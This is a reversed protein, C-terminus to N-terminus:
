VAAEEARLRDAEAKLAADNEAKENMAQLREPLEEVLEIARRIKRDLFLALGGARAQQLCAVLDRWSTRKFACTVFPTSLGRNLEADLKNVADCMFAHSETGRMAPLAKRVGDIFSVLSRREFRIELLTPEVAASGRASRARVM